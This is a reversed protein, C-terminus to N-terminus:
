IQIRRLVELLLGDLAVFYGPENDVPAPKPEPLVCPRPHQQTAFFGLVPKRPRDFASRPKPYRPLGHQARVLPNPALRLWTEARARVAARIRRHRVNEPLLEQFAPHRPPRKLDSSRRTPFPPLSRHPSSHSFFLA